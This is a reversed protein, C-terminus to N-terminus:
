TLQDLDKKKEAKRNEEKELETVKDIDQMAQEDKGLKMYAKARRVYAEKMSPSLSIARGYLSIADTIKGKSEVLRGKMLYNEAYYPSLNIAMDVDREATENDGLREEALAKYYYLDADDHYLMVARSLDKIADSLYGLRYECIGKIKYLLPDETSDIKNAESLAEEYKELKFLCFARLSTAEKGEVGVLSSLAESFLGMTVMARSAKIVNGANRYSELAKEFNGMEMQVDGLVEYAEKSPNNEIENKILKYAYNLNGQKLQLRAEQIADM